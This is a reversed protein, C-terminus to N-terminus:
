GQRVGSDAGRRENSADSADCTSLGIASQPMRGLNVEVAGDLMCGSNRRGQFGSGGGQVHTVELTVGPSLPTLM